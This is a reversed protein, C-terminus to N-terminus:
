RGIRKRVAERTPEPFTALYEEPVKRLEDDPLALLIQERSFARLVQEPALGALRQEPALGALRLRPPILDLFKQVVEDYGELERATMMAEKTGVQEAWFRRAEQPRERSHSFLRLLDEEESEAVVDIKAVWLRFPGGTLEWYGGGLDSWCLGIEDADVDLTPTRAPVLLLAGLDKRHEIGNHADCYYTHVYSWLRDLERARYPRGVSKLEAITVLPLHGWLGRLTQGRDDAPPDLLKRLLLYDLRPREESLPVEDRVEVWRPGRRRLLITFFFHWATRRVSV